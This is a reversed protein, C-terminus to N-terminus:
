ATATEDRVLTFYEINKIDANGGGTGAIIENIQYEYNIVPDPFVPSKVYLYRKLQIYNPDEELELPEPEMIIAIPRTLNGIIPLVPKSIEIVTSNIIRKISSGEQIVDGAVIAGEQLDVTNSVTLYYSDTAMEASTEWIGNTLTRYFVVTTQINGTQGIATGGVTFTNNNNPDVLLKILSTHREGDTLGTVEVVSAELPPLTADRVIEGVTFLTTNSGGTNEEIGYLSSAKGGDLNTEDEFDTGENYLDAFGDGGPYLESNPLVLGLYDDQFKIDQLITIPERLAIITDGVSPDVFRHPQTTATGSIGGIFAIVNSKENARGADIFALEDIEFIVYLSKTTPNWDYVKAIKNSANAAARNVRDSVQFTYRSVGFQDDAGVDLVLKQDYRFNIGRNCGTFSNATKGTYSIIEKNLFLSGSGPYPATSEVWITSDSPEVDKILGTLNKIDSAYSARNRVKRILKTQRAFIVEPESTYKNGRDVLQINDIEGLNIEAYAKAGSGGGGSILVLPDSEYFEGPNEIRIREVVGFEDVGAVGKAGDGNGGSISIVTNSPLYERGENLISLGTVFGTIARAEAGEGQGGRIIATTEGFYSDGQSTLQVYDIEGTLNGELDKKIFVKGIAGEPNSEGLGPPNSGIIEIRLPDYGYGPDIVDVRVIKGDKIVPHLKAEATPTGANTISLLPPRNQDYGSGGNEVIVSDVGLLSNFIPTIRAGSGPVIAM